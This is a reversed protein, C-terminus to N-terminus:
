CWVVGYGWRQNEQALQIILNKLEDSIPPRGGKNKSSYAWKKRVLECHWRLVTEPQFIRVVSRLQKATQNTLKKLKVTFVSLLLKDVRGPKIPCNLKRQLISLQQRLVLIELDKELSKCATYALRQRKRFSLVHM